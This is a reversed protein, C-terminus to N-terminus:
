PGIQIHGSCHQPLNKCVEQLHPDEITYHTDVRIIGFFLLAALLVLLLAV